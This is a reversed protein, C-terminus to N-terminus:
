GRWSITMATPRALQDDDGDAPGLARELYGLYTRALGSAPPRPQAGWRVRAAENGARNAFVLRFRDSAGTDSWTATTLYPRYGYPLLAAVADFFRLRIPLDPLDPGTITVPGDLLMAATAAVAGGLKRVTRALGAPDLRSIALPILGGGPHPLLDLNAVAEYLGQYSVPDQALQEYPVCFYCTRSIPRGTTPSWSGTLSGGSEIRDWRLVSNLQGGRCIITPDASVEPPNEGHAALRAFPWSFFLLVIRFRLGSRDRLSVHM